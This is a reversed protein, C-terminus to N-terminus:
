AADGALGEDGHHVHRALRLLGGIHNTISTDYLLDAGSVSHGSGVSRMARRIAARLDAVNGPTFTFKARPAIVESCGVRSSLIAPTGCLVTEVGVLGFPEYQSALITFDAAQYCEEIQKM